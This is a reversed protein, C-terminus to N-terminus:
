SGRDKRSPCPLLFAHICADKGQALEGLLDQNDIEGQIIEIQNMKKLAPVKNQNRALITVHHGCKVLEVAIYSGIFGTGGTLLINM